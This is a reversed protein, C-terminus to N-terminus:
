NTNISLLVMGGVGLLIGLLALTVLLIRLLKQALMCWFPSNESPLTQRVDYFLKKRGSAEARKEWGTPQGCSNESEGAFKQAKDPWNEFAGHRKSQDMVFTSKAFGV